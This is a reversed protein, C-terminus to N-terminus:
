NKLHIKKTHVGGKSCWFASIEVAVKILIRAYSKIKRVFLCVLAVSFLVEKPEVPPPLLQFTFIETPDLFGDSPMISGLGSRNLIPGCDQSSSDPSEDM